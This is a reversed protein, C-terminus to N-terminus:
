RPACATDTVVIDDKGIRKVEDQRQSEEVFLEAFTVLQDNVQQLFPDTSGTPQPPPPPVTTAAATIVYPSDVTMPTVVWGAPVTFAVASASGVSLPSFSGALTGGTQDVVQLSTTPETTVTGGAVLQDFASLSAVDLQLTGSGAFTVDGSARVTGIGGAGGPQLTGYVTALPAVLSISSGTVTSTDQIVVSAPAALTVSNGATVSGQVDLDGASTPVMAAVVPAVATLSIDTGASLGAPAVGRVGVMAISGGASGTVYGLSNPVCSCGSGSLDISGKVTAAISGTNVYYSNQADQTLSGALNATMTGADVTGLTVDGANSFDLNGLVSVYGPGLNITSAGGTGSLFANGTADIGSEVGMSINPAQLKVTAGGAFGVDLDTASLVTLNGKTDMSITDIRNGANGLLLDSGAANTTSAYLGGTEITTGTKQTVVTPAPVDPSGSFLFMNASRINGLAFSGNGGIDVYGDSVLTGAIDNSGNGSAYLTMGTGGSTSSSVTVGSAVNVTAGELDLTGGSVNSNITLNGASLVTVSAKNGAADVADIGNGALGYPSVVNGIALDQANHFYLSSGAGGINAGLTSVLNNGSLVASGNDANIQLRPVQIVSTGPDQSILGNIAHLSLVASGTPDSATVSGALYLNRDSQLGLANTNAWEINVGSAVTIDGNGGTGGNTAVIVSSSLLARELDSERIHSISPGGSFVSGQSTETISVNNDTDIVIDNPDLLLVGNAGRPARTDVTGTFQLAQKGSVEVFGGNGGHAGGRASVQGQMGTVEDSWVIVKGGDGQETADASIKATSAVYTRRANAVDPNQGQYDGGVRVQGGGAAGSVDLFANDQLAVREGLVDISGGQDGAKAVVTGNVLADGGIAQLVVKGGETSVANAMIAGSHSLTNAFVAVADGKLTGLNRAEDGAQVELQIGELGRGTLAVKHGAALVVAGGDAQLLASAGAQVNPGILVIDGSRALIKGDVQVGAGAGDQFLLRGAVADADGLRLTSAVFGATDVVGGAGVTIGAPNVLVIRGNSWLTGYIASPDPGVVRNISTSTASPQFFQTTSGGPVSFSQWNIASHSTGAGNQTRVVLNNGSTAFTAQGHVAQGGVPQALVPQLVFAAAVAAAAAHPRFGAVAPHVAARRPARPASRTPQRSM